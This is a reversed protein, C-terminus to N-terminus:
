SGSKSCVALYAKIRHLDEEIRDQDSKSISEQGFRVRYYSDVIRGLSQGPPPLAVAKRQLLHERDRPNPIEATKEFRAVLLSAARGAFARQTEESKRDIGTKALMRELRLYFGVSAQRLQRGEKQDNGPFFRRLLRLFGLRFSCYVLVCGVALFLVLAYVDAQWDGSRIRHLLNQCHEKLFIGLQKWAEWQILNQKFYQFYERLPQYVFESQREGDMFLVDRRWSEQIRRILNTFGSITRQVVNQNRIPPTPDLRLWGGNTWHSAFKGEALNEPLSPPPIRAEVWSHADSQRVVYESEKGEEALIKYGLCVRSPINVARLMMALTGAFYECHGQPHKGVFDELPDIALDRAIGGLRYQFHESLFLRQELNKARAYLDTKPLGSEDDWKQALAVLSPLKTKSILLYESTDRIRESPILDTQEGNQFATTYFTNEYEKRLLAYDRPVEIRNPFLVIPNEGDAPLYFPWVTFLVPSDLKQTRVDLSVLDTAEEFFVREINYAQLRIYRERYRSRREWSSIRERDEEHSWRGDLYREVTVGRLYFFKGEMETYPVPPNQLRREIEDRSDSERIGQSLFQVSLTKEGNQIVNGVSGLRIEETFGVSAIGIGSREEAGWHELTVRYGFIEFGGFRPILLFLIAGFVLSLIATNGLRFFLERQGGILGTQRNTGGSFVAPSFLSPWKLSKTARSKAPYERFMEASLVSESFSNSEETDRRDEWLGTDNKEDFVAATEWHSGSVSESLPSFAALIRQKADHPRNKNKGKGTRSDSERYFLILSLPGVVFTALIIKLLRTLSQRERFESWQFFGLSRAFSHQKFYANEEHLFMLTLASMNAFVYVLLLLGFVLSQQFASAVVIQLFSILLLHWRNRYNKEQFLVVIQVLQLLRAIGLALDETRNWSLYGFSLFVILLILANSTWRNLRITGKIDAFYLSAAAACFVLVPLFFNTTGMGLMFASLCVIFVLNFAIGYQLRM